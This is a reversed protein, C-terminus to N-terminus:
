RGQSAGLTIRAAERTKVLNKLRLRMRQRTADVETVSLLAMLRTEGEASQNKWPLGVALEGSRESHKVANRGETVTRAGVRTRVDSRLPFCERWYWVLFGFSFSYM